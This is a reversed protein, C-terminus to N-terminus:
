EFPSRDARGRCADLPLAGIYWSRAFLFPTLATEPGEAPYDYLFFGTPSPDIHQNIGSGSLVRVPGGLPAASRRVAGARDRRPRPVVAAGGSPSRGPAFAATARTCTRSAFFAIAALLVDVRSSPHGGFWQVPGAPAGVSGPRPPCGRDGRAGLCAVALGRRPGAPHSAHALLWLNLGYVIGAMLGGAFSMGLARALLYMGFTAAWLILLATRGALGPPACM